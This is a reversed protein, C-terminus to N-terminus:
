VLLFDRQNNEICILLQLCLARSSSNYRNLSRDVSSKTPLLSCSQHVVVCLRRDRFVFDNTFTDSFGRRLQAACGSGLTLRVHLVFVSSTAVRLCFCIASSFIVCMTQVMCTFNRFDKPASSKDQDTRHPRRSVIFLRHLFREAHIARITSTCM